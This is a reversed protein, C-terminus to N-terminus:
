LEARLGLITPRVSAINYVNVPKTRAHMSKPNGVKKLNMYEPDKDEYDIAQNIVTYQIGICLKLNPQKQTMPAEVTKILLKSGAKWAEDFQEFDRKFVVESSPAESEWSKTKIDPKNVKRDVAAVVKAM